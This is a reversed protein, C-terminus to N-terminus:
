PTRTIYMRPGDLFSGSTRSGAGLLYEADLPTDLYVSGSLLDGGGLTKEVEFKM